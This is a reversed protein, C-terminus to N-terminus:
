GVMFSWLVAHWMNQTGKILYLRSIQCTSLYLLPVYVNQTFQKNLETISSQDSNTYKCPIFHPTRLKGYSLSIYINIVHWSTCHAGCKVSATISVRKIYETCNWIRKYVGVVPNYVVTIASPPPSIRSPKRQGTQLASRPV